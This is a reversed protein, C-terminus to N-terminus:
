SLLIVFAIDSFALLWFGMHFRTELFVIVFCLVLIIDKYKLLYNSPCDTYIDEKQLVFQIWM